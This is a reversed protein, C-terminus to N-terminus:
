RPPALAEALALSEARGAHDLLKELAHARHELARGRVGQLHRRQGDLDRVAEVDDAIWRVVDDLQARLRQPIVRVDQREHSTIRLGELNRVPGLPEKELNREGLVVQGPQREHARRNEAADIAHLFRDDERALRGVREQAEAIPRPV